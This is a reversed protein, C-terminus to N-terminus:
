TKQREARLFKNYYPTLKEGVAARSPRVGLHQRFWHQFHEIAAEKKKPLEGRRVLDAVEIHFQEWPYAPRGRKTGPLKRQPADNVIYTIGIREVTGGPKREGPFIVLMDQTDFNIHCYHDSGNKATSADFNIGHLTWFSAPIDSFALDFTSLGEDSLMSLAENVDNSPLKRGRAKLRGERLAVFIISSPYELAGEYMPTWKDMERELAVAKEREGQLWARFEPTLNDESLQEDYSTSPLTSRDELAAIWSPDPPIKAAQTEEEFVYGALFSTAYDGIEETERIEKGDLTYQTVPLRQFAVWYLVEQLFCREPLSVPQLFIPM